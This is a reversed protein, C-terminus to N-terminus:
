DYQEGFIEKFQEETIYVARGKAGDGTSIYGAQEMQDIIRAARAYGIAFRRRIMTISAQGCEIFMKLVVPLLEDIDNNVLGKSNQNNQNPNEIKEEVEPDFITDNNDRVYDVIKNIESTTVFCGQVRKPEQAGVPYYLMDGKGLLKEAGVRDLITMSDVASTVAFAIRSPFNSKILGTIVDVSPRQTALILHIGAARSKQALRCVKEEVEKKGTMMLDALEDVIIVILPMKEVKGSVVDPTQNYEDINKVRAFGLIEFRREMESVAWALTNIAKQTDCVIKPIVLHPLAEYNSFEVRKPDILIIKVDEPSAKYIISLIISNLCVSKGSGTSGAVLLHTLKQMNCCITNGTIDKGLAFTLPSSSQNFERSAIVDKLSITAITSNPVEIGVVSKGPVPAEIRISGEAALSLAIDDARNKIKSVSIGQPMELEYRTVAPGVVVGQVKAPVGFTELTNELLVRKAAVDENLTSLDVSQTTIFNIPPKEYIYPEKKEPEREVPKSNEPIDFIRRRNDGVSDRPAFEGRGTFNGSNNRDPLKNIVNTEPDLNEFIDPNNEKEEKIASQLIDDAQEVLEESKVEPLPKRVIPRNDPKFEDEFYVQKPEEEQTKLASLSQQVEAKEPMQSPKRIDKFYEDIDIKPPTLIIQKLSKPPEPEANKEEEVKKTQASSSISKDLGLIQRATLKKEEEKLNGNLVINPTEEITEEQQQEPRDFLSENKDKISVSVNGDDQKQKKMANLSDVLLAISIALGLGSIIFAGVYSAIYLFISSFFGILFGGATWKDTYNKGLYQWFSLDGKNGVIALQLVCLTFFVALILCITYKKTMVYKRNNVLALGVVFMALCMPFGFVGFIGLLFTQLPKVIGTLFLFVVSASGLLSFGVIKKTNRTSEKKKKSNLKYIAM